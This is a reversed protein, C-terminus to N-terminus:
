DRVTSAPTWTSYTRGAFVAELVGYAVGALAIIAALVIRFGPLNVWAGVLLAALLEALALPAIHGFRLWLGALLFSAAFLLNFPTMWKLFRHSLYGYLLGPRAKRLRTWLARHVNIAQCSIRAKRQFEEDWRAAGREKVQVTQTSVVRKGTLLACMSLYLDDILEDPPPTYASREIVFLAGDVGILGITDSELSKIFEEINWYIAGSASIGSEGANTYTLRASAACVDPDRMAEVLNILADRPVEVNADTFALLEADTNEVLRKLGVTKGLREDSVVITLRDRYRELREATRDSSGDVYIYIQAPGYAESAALLSRVKAEIVREENYASMFIAMTPRTGGPAPRLLPRKRIMMLSIPYTTYPHVALLFCILALGLCLEIM